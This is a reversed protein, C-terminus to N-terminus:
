MQFCKLLQPFSEILKHNKRRLSQLSTWRITKLFILISIALFFQPFKQSHEVRFSLASDWLYLFPSQRVLRPKHYKYPRLPVCHSYNQNKFQWFSLFIHLFKLKLRTVKESYIEISIKFFDLMWNKSGM